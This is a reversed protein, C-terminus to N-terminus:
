QLTYDGGAQECEYKSCFVDSSGSNTSPARICRGSQVPVWFGGSSNCNAPCESPLYRRLQGPVGPGDPICSCQLQSDTSYRSPACVSMGSGHPEYATNEINTNKDNWM